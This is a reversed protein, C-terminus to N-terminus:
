SEGGDGGLHLVEGTRGHVIAIQYQKSRIENTGQWPFYVVWHSTGPSPPAVGEVVPLRPCEEWRVANAGYEDWGAERAAALAADLAHELRIM